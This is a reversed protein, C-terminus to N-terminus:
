SDGLEQWDYPGKWGPNGHLFDVFLTRVQDNSLVEASQTHLRRDSDRYEVVYFVGNTQAPSRKMKEIFSAEWLSTDDEHRALWDADAAQLFTGPSQSLQIFSGFSGGAAFLAALDAEKVDKVARGIEPTLMMKACGM